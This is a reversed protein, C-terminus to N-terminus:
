FMVDGNEIIAGSSTIPAATPTPVQPAAPQQAAEQQVKTVDDGQSQLFKLVPEWFNPAGELLSAESALPTEIVARKAGCAVAKDNLQKVVASYIGQQYELEKNLLSAKGNNLLQEVREVNAPNWSAMDSGMNVFVVPINQAAAAEAAALNVGVALPVILRKAGTTQFMTQAVAQLATRRRVSGELKRSGVLLLDEKTMVLASLDVSVEANRRNPLDAPAFKHELEWGNDECLQEFFALRQLGVEKNQGEFAGPSSMRITLQINSWDLGERQVAKKMTEVAKVVSASYLEEDYEGNLIEKRSACFAIFDVDDDLVVFAEEKGRVKFTSSARVATNVRVARELDVGLAEARRRYIGAEGYTFVPLGNLRAKAPVEVIKLTLAENTMNTM